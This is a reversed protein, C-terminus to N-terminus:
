SVDDAEKSDKSEYSLLRKISKKKIVGTKKATGAKDKDNKAFAKQLTRKKREEAQKKLDQERQMLENKEPTDTAVM